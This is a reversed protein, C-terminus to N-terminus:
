MKWINIGEEEVQAMELNIEFIRIREEMHDEWNWKSELENKM